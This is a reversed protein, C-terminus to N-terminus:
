GFRLCGHRFGDDHGGQTRGDAGGHLARQAVGVGILQRLVDDARRHRIETARLDVVHNQALAQVAATDDGPVGRDGRAEGRNRAERDISVAGCALGGHLAGRGANPGSHVLQDERAAHVGRRRRRPELAPGAAVFLVNPECRLAM